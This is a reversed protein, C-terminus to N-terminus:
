HCTSAAACHLACRYVYKKEQLAELALVVQAVYFKAHDETICRVSARQM